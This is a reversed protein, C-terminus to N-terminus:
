PQGVRKSSGSLRFACLALLVAKRVLAYFYFGRGLGKQGAGVPWSFHSWLHVTGSRCLNIIESTRERWIVAAGRLGKQRANKKLKLILLKVRRGSSRSEASLGM